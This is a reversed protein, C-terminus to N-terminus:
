CGAAGRHWPASFQRCNLQRWAAVLRRWSAQITLATM